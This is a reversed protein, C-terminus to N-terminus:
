NDAYSYLNGSSVPDPSGNYAAVGGMVGFLALVVGVAGGILTNM